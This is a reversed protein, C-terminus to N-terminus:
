TAQPGNCTAGGCNSVKEDDIFRKRQRQISNQGYL